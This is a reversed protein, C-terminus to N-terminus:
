NDLALIGSMYTLNSRNYVAAYPYNYDDAGDDYPPMTLSAPYEYNYMYYSIYVTNNEPLINITGFGVIKWPGIASKNLSQLEPHKENYQITSAASGPLTAGSSYFPEDTAGNAWSLLNNPLTVINNYQMATEYSATNYDALTNPPYGYAMSNNQIMTQLADLYYVNSPNVLIENIYGIPITYNWLNQGTALNVATISVPALDNLSSPYEISTNDDWGYDSYYGIGNYASVLKYNNYSLNFYSIDGIPTIRIGQYVVQTSGAVPRTYEVLYINNQSDFPMKGFLEVYSTFDKSWLKTGNPYLAVLGNESPIYLIGNEYIPLTM